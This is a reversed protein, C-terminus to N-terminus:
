AIFGKRVLEKYVAKMMGDKLRPISKKMGPKIFLANPIRAILNQFPHRRSMWIDSVMKRGLARAKGLSRPLQSVHKGHLTVGLIGSVYGRLFVSNAAFGALLAAVKKAAFGSATAIGAVYKGGFTSTLFAFLGFRDLLNKMRACPAGAFTPSSLIVGDAETLIAKVQEFDDAIGCKGAAMCGLCGRCFEIRYEPLYIERIEAGSEAAGRLAERVLTASNGERNSSSIVGTIKM